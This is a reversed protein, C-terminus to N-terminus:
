VPDWRYFAEAADLIVKFLSRDNDVGGDYGVVGQGTKASGVIVSIQKGRMLTLADKIPKYKEKALRTLDVGTRPLAMDIKNIFLVIQKGNALVSGLIQLIGENTYFEIQKKIREDDFRGAGEIVPGQFLDVVIVLISPPVIKRRKELHPNYVANDFRQGV